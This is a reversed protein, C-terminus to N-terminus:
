SIWNDISNLALPMQADIHNRVGAIRCYQLEGVPKETTRHVNTDDCEYYFQNLHDDRIRDMLSALVPKPSLVHAPRLVTGSITRRLFSLELHDRELFGAVINSSQDPDVSRNAVVSPDM